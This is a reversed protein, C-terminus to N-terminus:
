QTKIKVVRIKTKHIDPKLCPRRVMKPRNLFGHITVGYDRVPLAQNRLDSLYKWFRRSHRPSLNNVRVRPFFRMQPLRTSSLLECGLLSHGAVSSFFQHLKRNYREQNEQEDSQGATVGMLVGPGMCDAFVTIHVPFSEAVASHQDLIGITGKYTSAAKM